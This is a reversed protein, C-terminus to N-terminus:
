EARCSPVIRKDVTPDGAEAREILAKYLPEGLDPRDIEMAAKAMYLQGNVDLQKRTLLKEIVKASVEAAAQRQKEAEERGSLDNTTRAEIVKGNAAKWQQQLLT